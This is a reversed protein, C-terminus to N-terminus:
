DMISYGEEVIYCATIEDCKLCELEDYIKQMLQIFLDNCENSLMPNIFAKIDDLITAYFYLGYNDIRKTLIKRNDKEMIIRKLTIQM